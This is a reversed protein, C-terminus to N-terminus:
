VNALSLDDLIEKFTNLQTEVDRGAVCRLGTVLTTGDGKNYDYTVYSHGKKLTGDYHLTNDPDSLVANSLEDPVHIQAVYRAELIMLNSFTRGHLQAVEIELLDRLVIELVKEVDRSSLGMCMLDQYVARIKDDYIGNHFFNAKNALFNNLKEELM